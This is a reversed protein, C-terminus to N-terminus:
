RGEAVDHQGSAACSADLCDGAPRLRHFDGYTGDRLDRVSWEPDLPTANMNGSIGDVAILRNVPDIVVATLGPLEILIKSDGSVKLTEV